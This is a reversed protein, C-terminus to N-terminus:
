LPCAQRLSEKKGHEFGREMCIPLLIAHQPDASFALREHLPIICV